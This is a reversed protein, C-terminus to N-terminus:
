RGIWAESTLPWPNFACGDLDISQQQMVPALSGPASCSAHGHGLWHGVEHNIVMHRYDRLSGGATNWSPTAGVWRDQNIIVYVGVRCSYLASCGPAYRRELEQADSLVLVFDGGSPLETFKAGAKPWGLPNSLTEAAQARFEDVSATVAGWAQVSYTFSRSAGTNKPRAAERAAAETARKDVLWQPDEITPAEVASLVQPLARLDVIESRPNDDAAVASIANLMVACLGAAIAVGVMFGAWKM